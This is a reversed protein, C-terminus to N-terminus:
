TWAGLLRLSVGLGVASVLLPLDRTKLTAVGRASVGDAGRLRTALEIREAREATRALLAALVDVSVQPGRAGRLRRALLLSHGQERVGRAQRLMTSVVGVLAEPVGLASLGGVLEDRELSAALVTAVGIASLGRGGLLLAVESDGALWWPTLLAALPVIGLWGAAALLSRRPRVLVLLLAALLLSASVAIARAPMTAVAVILIVGALLRAAASARRM